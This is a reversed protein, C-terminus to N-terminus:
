RTPPRGAWRRTQRPGFAGAPFLTITVQLAPWIDCPNFSFSVNADVAGQFLADTVQESQELFEAPVSQNVAPAATFPRTCVVQGSVEKTGFAYVAVATVNAGCPVLTWNGYGAFRGNVYWFAGEPRAYFDAISVNVLMGNAAGSLSAGTASGAGAPKVALYPASAVVPKSMVYFLPALVIIVAAAIAVALVFAPVEEM